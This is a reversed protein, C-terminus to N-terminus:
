WAEFLDLGPIYGLEPMRMYRAEMKKYALAGKIKQRSLKTVGLVVDKEVVELYSGLLWLVKTEDLLFPFSLGLLECNTCLSLEPHLLALVERLWEWAEALLLCGCYRHETTDPERWCGGCLNNQFRGPMLRFGREKTSVREHVLLYLLSQATPSLVPHVSRSWVKEWDYQPHVDEILPPPMTETYSLYLMKTTVNELKDEELREMYKAEVLLDRIKLYLEPTGDRVIGKSAVTHEVSSM